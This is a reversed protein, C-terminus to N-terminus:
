PGETPTLPVDAYHQQDGACRRLLHPSAEGKPDYESSDTPPLTTVRKQIAGPKTSQERAMSAGATVGMPLPYLPRLWHVNDVSPRPWVDRYGRHADLM